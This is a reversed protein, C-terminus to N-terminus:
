GKGALGPAGAGGRSRQVVWAARAQGAAAQPGLLGSAAIAYNVMASIGMVAVAEDYIIRVGAAFQHGKKEPACWVIRGKLEVPKGDAHVEKSQLMVHTGPRLYRGMRLRLGGRSVDSAVAMGSDGAGHQYSIRSNFAVRAFNRADDLGTHTGSM